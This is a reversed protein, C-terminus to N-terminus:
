AESKFRRVVCYRLALARGHTVLSAAAPFTHSCIGVTISNTAYGWASPSSRTTCRAVCRSPTARPDCTM